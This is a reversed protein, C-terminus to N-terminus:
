RERFNEIEMQCGQMARLAHDHSEPTVGACGAADVTIRTEPLHAKLLFANSIVCIDTCIGVLTIEAIPERANEAQLAQALAVSGFTPKDVLRGQPAYKQLADVLEWGRTGKICHVVPLLRGEQTALYDEGHTDRTFYVADGAALAQEIREAVHPIIAEAATNKLAGTVFDNQMDVVVLVKKM